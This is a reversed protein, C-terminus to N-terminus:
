GHGDARSLMRLAVLTGAPRSLALTLGAVTNPRSLRSRRILHVALREATYWGAAVVATRAAHDPHAEAAAIYPDPRTARVDILSIGALAAQIVASAVTRRRPSMIADKAAFDLFTLASSAALVVPLGRHVVGDAAPTAPPPSM